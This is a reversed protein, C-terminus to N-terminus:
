HRFYRGYTLPLEGELTLQFHVINTPLDEDRPAERHTNESDWAEIIVERLSKPLHNLIGHSFSCLPSIELKKLKTWNRMVAFAAPDVGRKETQEGLLKETTGLNICLSEISSPFLSFWKTPFSRNRISERITLDRLKPPLQTPHEIFSGGYSAIHLLLLNPPLLPLDKARCDGLTLSTLNVCDVIKSHWNEPPDRKFSLKRLHSPYEFNPDTDFLSEFDLCTIHKPWVSSFDKRYHIMLMTNLDKPLRKLHEHEWKRTRPQPFYKLKPPLAAVFKELEGNDDNFNSREYDLYTLSHPFTHLLSVDLAMARRNITRWAGNGGRLKLYELHPPLPGLSLEWRSDFRLLQKPLIVAEPLEVDDGDAPTLTLDTLSSPFAEIFGFPPQYTFSLRTLAPPFKSQECALSILGLELDILTAPLRALTEHQIALFPDRLRTLPPLISPKASTLTKSWNVGESTDLNTLTPPLAGMSPVGRFFSYLYPGVHLTQLFPPFEELFLTTSVMKANTYDFVISLHRLARFQNVFEPYRAQLHPPIELTFSEVGGASAMKLNLLADGCMYLRTIEIGSIWNTISCIIEPPLSSVSM